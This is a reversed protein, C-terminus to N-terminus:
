TTYSPLPTLVTLRVLALPFTGRVKKRLHILIAEAGSIVEPGDCFVPLEGTPSVRPNNCPDVAFDV